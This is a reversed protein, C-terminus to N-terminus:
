GGGERGGGGGGREREGERRGGRPPPPHSPETLPLSVLPHGDRHCQSFCSVVCSWPSLLWDTGDPLLHLVRRVGAWPCLLSWRRPLPAVAAQPARRPVGVRGEALGYQSPRRTLNSLDTVHGNNDVVPRPPAASETRATISTATFMCRCTTERCDLHRLSLEDGSNTSMERRFLSLYACNSSHCAKNPRCPPPSSPYNAATKCCKEAETWRSTSAWPPLRVGPRETVGILHM